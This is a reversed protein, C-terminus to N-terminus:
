HEDNDSCITKKPKNMVYYVKNEKEIAKGNVTIFDKKKVKYGLETLTEGNVKVKGELILQEAKRRSCIGSAAIVKQIREM